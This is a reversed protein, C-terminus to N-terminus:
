EGGRGMVLDQCAETERHEHYLRCRGGKWPRCTGTEFGARGEGRQLCRLCYVKACSVCASARAGPELVRSCEDCAKTVQWSVPRWPQLSHRLLAATGPRKLYVALDRLFLPHWDDPHEALLKDTKKFAFLDIVLARLPANDRIEEYLIRTDSPTLVSNTQEALDSIQDITQNRLAELALRDALAYLNLLTYYAPKGDKFFVLPDLQSTYLWAVCLEFIAPNEAPLKVTQSISEAFSGNLAATFFPSHHTLLERHVLFRTEKPGVFIEAMTTFTKFNTVLSFRQSSTGAQSYPPPLPMFGLTM